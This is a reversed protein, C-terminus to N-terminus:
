AWGHLPEEVLKLLYIIKDFTTDLRDDHRAFATAVGFQEAIEKPAEVLAAIELQRGAELDQLMSTKFAGLRRTVAQRAEGSETITIGIRRGIEAAEDMVQLAFRAM